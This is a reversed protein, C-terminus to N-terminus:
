LSSFPVEIHFFTIVVFVIQWINALLHTPFNKGCEARVQISLQFQSGSHAKFDTKVSWRGGVVWGGGM